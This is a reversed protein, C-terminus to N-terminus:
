VMGTVAVLYNTNGLALILSETFAGKNVSGLLQPVLPELCMDGGALAEDGKMCWEEEAKSGAGTCHYSHIKNAETAKLDLCLIEGKIEVLILASCHVTVLNFLYLMATTLGSFTGPALPKDFVLHWSGLVLITGAETEGLGTCVTGTAEAKCEKLHWHFPGLPPLNATEENQTGELTSVTKCELDGTANHFLTTGESAGSFSKAGEPLNSPQMGVAFASTASAAAAVLVVLLGLGLLSFRKM